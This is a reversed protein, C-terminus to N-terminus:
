DVEIEVERLITALADAQTADICRFSVVCRDGDPGIAQAAVDHALSGDTLLCEFVIVEDREDIISRSVYGGSM